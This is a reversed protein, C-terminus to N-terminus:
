ETYWRGLLHSYRGNPPDKAQQAMLEYMLKVTDRVNDVDFESEVAAEVDNMTWRIGPQQLTIMRTPGRRGGRRHAATRRRHAQSQLGATAQAGARALTRTAGKAPSSPGAPEGHKSQATEVMASDAAQKTLALGPVDSSRATHVSSAAVSVPKTKRTTAAAFDARSIGMTTELAHAGVGAAQGAQAAQLASAKMDYRMQKDFASPVLPKGDVYKKVRTALGAAVKAAIDPKKKAEQKWRKYNATEVPNIHYVVQDAVLDSLDKAVGDDDVAVRRGDRIAAMEQTLALEEEKMSDELYEALLANSVLGYDNLIRMIWDAAEARERAVEFRAEALQEPGAKYLETPVSLVQLM